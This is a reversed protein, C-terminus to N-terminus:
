CLLLAMQQGLLASCSMLVIVNLRSPGIIKEEIWLMLPQSMFFFHMAILLSRAQQGDNMWIPWVHSAGLMAFVVAIGLYRHGTAQVVPKYIMERSAMGVFLNWRKSWFERLSQSKWPANMNISTSYGTLGCLFIGGYELCYLCHCIRMMMKAIMWLVDPCLPLVCVDVDKWERDISGVAAFIRPHLVMMFVLHAIAMLLAEGNFVEESISATRM